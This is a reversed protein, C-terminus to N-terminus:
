FFAHFTSCYYYRSVPLDDSVRARRMRLRTVFLYRYRSRNNSVGNQLRANIFMNRSRTTDLRTIELSPYRLNPQVNTAFSSLTNEIDHVVAQETMAAYQHVENPLDSFESVNPAIFCVM